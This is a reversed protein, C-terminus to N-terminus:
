GRLTNLEDRIKDVTNYTKTDFIGWYSYDFGGAEKLADAATLFRKAGELRFTWTRLGDDDTNVLFIISASERVPMVAVVLGPQAPRFIALISELLSSLSMFGM